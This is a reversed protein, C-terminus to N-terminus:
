LSCGGGTGVYGGDVVVADEVGGCEVEGLRGDREGSEGGGAAGSRRV